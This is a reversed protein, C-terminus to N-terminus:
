FSTTTKTIKKHQQNKTLQKTSVFMKIITLRKKNTPKNM